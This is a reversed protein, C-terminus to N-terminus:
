HGMVTNIVALIANVAFGVIHGPSKKCRFFDTIQGNFKVFSIIDNKTAAFVSTCFITSATFIIFLLSFVKKTM